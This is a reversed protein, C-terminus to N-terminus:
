HDSKSSIVFSFIASSNAPQWTNKLVRPVVLDTAPDATLTSEAACMGRQCKMVLLMCVSCYNTFNDDAYIYCLFGASMEIEETKM